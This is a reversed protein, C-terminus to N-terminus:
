HKQYRTIINGLRKSKKRTWWLTRVCTILIKAALAFQIKNTFHSRADRKPSKEARRPVRSARPRLGDELRHASPQAAGNPYVCTDWGSRQAQLPLDMDVGSLIHEQITDSAIWFHTADCGRLLAHALVM